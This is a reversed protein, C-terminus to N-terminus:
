RVRVNRHQISPGPPNRLALGLLKKRFELNCDPAHLQQRRTVRLKSFVNSLHFKVTSEKIQLIEGVEKNSLRRKVLDMVQRERETIEIGKGKDNTHRRTSISSRVFADIVESSFWMQRRAVAYIARILEDDIKSYPVFGHLGLLLLHVAEEPSCDRGVSVLRTNNFIECLIHLGQELPVDLTDLDILVVKPESRPLRTFHFGEIEYVRLAPDRGLFNM